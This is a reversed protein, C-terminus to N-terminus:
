NWEQTKKTQHLPKDEQYNPISPSIEGLWLDTYSAQGGSSTYVGAIALQSVPAILSHNM